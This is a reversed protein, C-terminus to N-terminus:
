GSPSTPAQNGQISSQAHQESRRKNHTDDASKDAGSREARLPRLVSLVHWKEHALDEHEDDEGDDCGRQSRGLSRPEAGLTCDPEERGRSASPQEEGERDADSIQHQGQSSM